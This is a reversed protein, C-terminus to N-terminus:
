ANANPVLEQSERLGPNTPNGLSRTGGTPASPGGFFIESLVAVLFAGSFAAVLGAAAILKKKPGVSKPVFSPEQIVKVNTFQRSLLAAEIRTQERAERYQTYNNAAVAVDQELQRIKVEDRNLQQAKAKLKKLQSRIEKSEADMSALDSGAELLEDRLNRVHLPNEIMRELTKYKAEISSRQSEVRLYQLQTENIQSKLIDQAGEVTVVGAQKKLNQLKSMLGKWEEQVLGTQKEFFDNSEPTQHAITHLEKYCDLYVEMIRKALEPSSAQLGIKLISSKRESLVYVEEILMQIAKQRPSKVFDDEPLIKEPNFEEPIDEDGLVVDAGMRDVIAEMLSRSTLMDRISNVESERSELVQVTQGTTAIPDLSVSERGLRVFVIAESLYSRPLFIIALVALSLVALLTLLAKGFNNKLAGLLFPISISFDPNM